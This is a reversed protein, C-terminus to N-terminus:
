KAIKVKAPRLLKGHLTFGTALEELIAGSPQDSQVEEVTEHLSPNFSTGTTPIQKVGQQELVKNLEDRIHQIGMYWETDQVEKAPPHEYAFKFFDVIPFLEQFLGENAFLMFEQRQREVEKKLNQYDAQSRQWGALHEDREQQLQHIIEAHHCRHPKGHEHDDHPHEHGHPAHPHDHGCGHHPGHEHLPHHGHETTDEQPEPPHCGGGQKGCACGHNLDDM